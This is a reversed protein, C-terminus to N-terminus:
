VPVNDVSILTLERNVVRPTNQYNMTVEDICPSNTIPKDDVVPQTIQPIDEIACNLETDSALKDITELVAKELEVNSEETEPLM